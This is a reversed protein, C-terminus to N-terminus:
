EAFCHEPGPYTRAKVEIVFQKFAGTITGDGAVLFNKVFRAPKGDFIGLMDHMVLVQGDCHPGAGIGIVPIKVSATVKEAVASPVCELLLMAAGAAELALAENVIRQADDGRGQVRYGGFVNVSQPTLGMHICSPIGNQQLAKVTDCLWAGGELKVIHAGARMLKAANELASSVQGYTMFPMDAMLMSVQNGRAVCSTHYAMDEITVPLTSSHGQLVMGLSDGILIVEVEAEAMTKAFGADYCTLVSFPTSSSKLTQLQRLTIPKVHM